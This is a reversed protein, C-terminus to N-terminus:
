HRQTGAADTGALRAHHVPRGQGPLGSEACVTCFLKHPCRTSSGSRYHGTLQKLQFLIVPGGVGGHSGVATALTALTRHSLGASRARVSSLAVPPVADRRTAAMLTAARTACSIFTLGPASTPCVTRKSSQELSRVRTSSLVSPLLIHSNM